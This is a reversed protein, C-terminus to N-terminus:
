LSMLLRRPRTILALDFALSDLRSGHRRETATEVLPGHSAVVKNWPCEGGDNQSACQPNGAIEFTCTLLRLRGLRYGAPSPADM